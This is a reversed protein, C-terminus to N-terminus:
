IQVGRRVSVSPRCSAGSSGRKKNRRAGAGEALGWGVTAAEGGEELLNPGPLCAPLAVPTNGDGHCGGGVGKREVALENRRLVHTRTFVCPRESGCM